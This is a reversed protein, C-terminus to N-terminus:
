RLAAAPSRVASPAPQARAAIEHARLQAPATSGRAHGVHRPGMRIMAHMVWADTISWIRVSRRVRAEAAATPRTRLGGDVRLVDPGPATRRGAAAWGAWQVEGRCGARVGGDEGGVLRVPPAFRASSSAAVRGDASALDSPLYAIVGYGRRISSRGRIFTRDVLVKLAVGRDHKRDHALYVTAMGGRGIERELTYEVSGSRGLRQRVAAFEDSM